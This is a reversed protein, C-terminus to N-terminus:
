IVNFVREVKFGGFEANVRRLAQRKADPISKASLTLVLDSNRDTIKYDKM